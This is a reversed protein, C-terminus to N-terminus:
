RGRKNTSRKLRLIPTIIFYFIKMSNTTYAFTSFSISFRGHCNFTLKPLFKNVPYDHFPNPILFAPYYLM